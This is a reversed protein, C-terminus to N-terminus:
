TIWDEKKNIQTNRRNKRENERKDTERRQRNRASANRQAAKHKTQKPKPANQTHTQKTPKHMTKNKGQKTERLNGSKEKNLYLKRTTERNKELKKGSM